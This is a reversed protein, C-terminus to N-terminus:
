RRWKEKTSNATSGNWKPLAFWFAMGTFNTITSSALTNTEMAFYSRGLLRFVLIETTVRKLLSWTYARKAARGFIKETFHFPLDMSQEMKTSIVLPQRTNSM